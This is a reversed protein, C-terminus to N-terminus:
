EIEKWAVFGNRLFMDISSQKVLFTIDYGGKAHKILILREKDISTPLKPPEDLLSKWRTKEQWHKNTLEVGEKFAGRLLYPMEEGKLNEFAIPELSKSYDSVAKEIEKTTM